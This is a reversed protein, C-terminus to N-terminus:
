GRFLFHRLFTDVTNNQFGPHERKLVSLKEQLKTMKTM